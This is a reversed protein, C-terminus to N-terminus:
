YNILVRVNMCFSMDLYTIKGWSVDGPAVCVDCSHEAGCTSATLLGLVDATVSIGTKHVPERKITNDVYRGHIGDHQWSGCM